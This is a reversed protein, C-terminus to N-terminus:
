QADERKETKELKAGVSQNLQFPATPPFYSGEDNADDFDCVHIEEEFISIKFLSLLRSGLCIKYLNHTM